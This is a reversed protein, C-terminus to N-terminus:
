DWDDYEIDEEKEGFMEALKGTADHYGVASAKNEDLFVIWYDYDLQVIYIQQKDIEETHVLKFQEYENNLAAQNIVNIVYKNDISNGTDLVNLVSNEDDAEEDDSSKEYSMVSETAGAVIDGYQKAFSVDPTMPEGATDSSESSQVETSETSESSESSETNEINQIEADKNNNEVELASFSDHHESKKNMACGVLMASIMTITLAIMALKKHM